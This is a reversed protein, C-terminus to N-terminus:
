ARRDRVAAAVCRQGTLGRAVDRIHTLRRRGLRRWRDSVTVVSLTVTLERIVGSASPRALQLPLPAPREAVPHSGVVM